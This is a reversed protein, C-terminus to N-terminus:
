KGFFILFDETSLAVKLKSPFVIVISTGILSNNSSGSFYLKVTSNSYILTPLTIKDIKNGGKATKSLPQPEMKITVIRVKKPHIGPTIAAKTM